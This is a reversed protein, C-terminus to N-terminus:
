AQGQAEALIVELLKTYVRGARFEPHNLVRRHLEM